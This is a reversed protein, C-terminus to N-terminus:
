NGKGGDGVARNREARREEETREKRDLSIKEYGERTKEREFRGGQAKQRPRSDEIGTDNANQM